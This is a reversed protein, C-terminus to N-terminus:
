RGKCNAGDLIGSSLKKKCYPKTNGGSIPNGTFLAEACQGTKAQPSATGPVPQAALAVSFQMRTFPEAPDRLLSAAKAKVKLQIAQKGTLRADKILLSWVGSASGPACGPPLAGSKNRYKWSQVGSGVATWGDDPGCGPGGPINVSFLPGVADEIHVHVGNVPPNIPQAPPAVNFRGKLLVTQAGNPESLKTLNARFKLPQQNPPSVPVATWAITTCEDEDDIKGDGDTDVCGPIADHQCGSGPNCSDATCTDTDACDLPPGGGVCSGGSCADATTCANGDNCPNTNPLFGCVGGACADNTCPNMDNCVMPTGSCSGGGCTDGTTCLNGDNCPGSQPPNVCGTAPVCQDATCPNGDTCPNLPGATCTGSVCTDNITCANGDSCTPGSLPTHSCGTSPVCTDSSCPNSDDCEANTECIRCPILFANLLIVAPPSFVAGSTDPPNSKSSVEIENGGSADALFTGHVSITDSGEISILGLLGHADILSTSAVDIDCGFLTVDGGSSNTGGSANIDGTVTVQTGDIEVLSSGPSNTSRGNANINGFIETTGDSIYLLDGAGGDGGDLQVDGSQRLLTRAGVDLDGGEGQTGTGGMNLLSNMFVNEADFALFGGACDLGRGRIDIEANVTIDGDATADIDAGDGCNEFQDAGLGSFKGTFVVNGDATFTALGADGAEGGGNMNVVGLTISGGNTIDYYGGGVDGGNLDVIGTVSVDGIAVINISGGGGQNGGTMTINGSLSVISGANITLTGGSALLGDGFLNLRGTGTVSGNAAKLTLTGADVGNLRVDGFQTQGNLQIDNVVDITASGGSTTSSIGRINGDGTIQFSGAKLTFTGPGSGMPVTGIQLTKQLVVTRTGFDVVAGADVTKDSSIICPNGTCFDDPASLAWAPRVMGVVAESVVACLAAAVAQRVSNGM